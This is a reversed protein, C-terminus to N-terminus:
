TTRLVRTPGMAVQEERGARLFGIGPRQVVVLAHHDQYVRRRVTNSLGEKSITKAEFRRPIDRLGLAGLSPSAPFRTPSTARFLWFPQFGRFWCRLGCRALGPYDRAAPKKQPGMEAPSCAHMRISQANIDLAAAAPYTCSRHAAHQNCLSLSGLRTAGERLSDHMYGQM